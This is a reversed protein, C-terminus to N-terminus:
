GAKWEAYQMKGDVMKAVLIQRCKEKVRYPEGVSIHIWGPEHILQGFPINSAAIWGFVQEIDANAPVIDAAEFLLHQSSEAGGVAKNLPISRFGSDVMIIGWKNRIPELIKDALWKGKDLYFRAQIRNDSVLAPHEKSDTLEAFKFHPSLYEKEDSM